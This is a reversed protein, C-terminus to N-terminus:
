SSCHEQLYSVSWSTWKKLNKRFEPNDAAAVYAWLMVSVCRACMFTELYPDIGGPLPRLEAYGELLADRLSEWDDRDRLDMLAVAMDYLWYGDACDDFDIARAEGEGFLVNGLHLDAHILGVADEGEGLDEIADAADRASSEYLRRTKTPIKDWVWSYNEGATGWSEFLGYWDWAGRVFGDPRKWSTSHEHLLAMLRGLMRMHTPRATRKSRMGGEMWRLLTCVRSGPVGEHEAVVALRGDSTSLPEPVSLDLSDRLASLWAAESEVAEPTHYGPRHVRLLYRGRAYPAGPGRGGGRRARVDFTVNESHAIHRVSSPRIGFEALSTLALSRLRELQGRHSLEDFPRM